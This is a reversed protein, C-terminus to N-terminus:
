TIVKVSVQKMATFTAATIKFPKAVDGSVPIERKQALAAVSTGAVFCILAFLKKMRRIDM